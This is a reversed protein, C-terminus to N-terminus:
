VTPIAATLNRMRVLNYAPCALTFFDLASQVGWSPAGQAHARHDEVLWLM